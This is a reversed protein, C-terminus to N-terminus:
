NKIIGNEKLFKITSEESVFGDTSISYADNKVIFTFPVEDKYDVLDYTNMLVAQEKKSLLDVEFFYLKFKYKKSLATIIPKYEQCHSCFSAGIVTVVEKNAKVDEYWDAVTHTELNSSPSFYVLLGFMLILVGIVSGTLINRADDKKNNKWVFYLIIGVVPLLLGLIWWPHTKNNM